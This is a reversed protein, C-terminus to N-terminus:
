LSKRLLAGVTKRYFKRVQSTTDRYNEQLKEALASNNEGSYGLLKALAALAEERTPLHNTFPQTLIKLACELNRLFLYNGELQDVVSNDILGCADLNHLVSLTNTQRLREYQHGHILQLIQMSFEIDAFGGYGLKVNKGKTSEKSLEVEMRERLRSIEIVSGYDLKEGYIFEHINELFKKGFEPNGAVFRARTMAQREWIRARSYFYDKYGQLSLVLVGSGGEPRLDTDIKYAYGAPTIESTLSYIMQSLTSYFAMARGEPPEMNEPEEYAFIIDLDSGFNLEGGGLKGMGFIAFQEPIPKAFGSKKQLEEMATLFSARLYIDALNSLDTLTGVLDAEKLLYRIGVRLEEGQKYRRLSLKRAEFDGCDELIKSLDQQMKEPKKFRYISELDMMIDVLDPQKILTESLFDSSGFLILLLELFKENSQFLGLYVERAKGAEIFKVLHDVASNPKPVTKCFELIKPLVVYFDQISKQSPYYFQQGDRLSKLFRFARGPDAFSGNEVLEQTFSEDGLGPVQFGRSAIEGAEQKKEEIFLGAFMSGVFRTHHDFTKMLRDSLGKPTAGRCGMKKAIVSLREEDGPLVHTQLGYSIQVRNELNRLFVYAEKLRDCEDPSIFGWARLKDLLPMTGKIRLNKNRGAFLLQNAQVIFEIERIGGFGLKIHAKGINKGKLSQNINEKMSKIEEVASFDLSRRYVFPEIIKFFEEGLVESGASVRAKLLAQREWTRGWSEYYVECSTLSNVIEGSRGEPRLNLDVRFVNGEATIENIAQTVILALKTFYEHNSIRIVPDSDPKEPRTEGKSSSYIYILDIDSSYNLEAGGLKGMGLIAFEAEKQTGDEAEYYPAGYKERCQHEAYEYAIQLCVDALNSLDGVTEQMEVKGLLDRLGIRIYERRKFRRLLFPIKDSHTGEGAMEYFDRMLSDKSKSKNLTDAKKLWDFHSPDKLLTDTLVQSGSFLTILAEFIEPSSTMLTYLYDKDLTQGAFREFNLLAGDASYSKSLLELFTPFFGPFLKEFNAHGALKTLYKWAKRPEAFAFEKLFNEIGEEWPADEYLKQFLDKPCNM